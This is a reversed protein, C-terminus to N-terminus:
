RTLPSCTPISGCAEITVVSGSYTCQQSTCSADGACEVNTKCLQISFTGGCPAAQCDAVFSSASPTLCCIPAGGDGVCDAASVCGLVLGSADNGVSGGDQPARQYGDTGGTVLFCGAISAAAALGAIARHRDM